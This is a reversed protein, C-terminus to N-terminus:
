SGELHRFSLPHLELSRKWFYQVWTDDSYKPLMQGGLMNVTACISAGVKLSKETKPYQQVEPFDALALGQMVRLKDLLFGLYIAQAQVLVGNRSRKDELERLRKEFRLLYAVDVLGTPQWDLLKLIPCAPYLNLFDTLSETLQPLVKAEALHARLESARDDSLQSYDSIFAWWHNRNDEQKFYKAIEEAVRAAFRHSIRDALVDWWVLEPMTQSAWSIYDWKFSQLMPPVFKTGVKQYSSLAKSSKKTPDKSMKKMKWGLAADQRKPL